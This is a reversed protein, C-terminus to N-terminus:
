CKDACATHCLHSAALYYSLKLDMLSPALGTRRSEGWATVSMAITRESLPALEDRVVTGVSLM